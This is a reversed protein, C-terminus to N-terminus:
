CHAGEPIEQDAPTVPNNHMTILVLQYTPHLDGTHFPFYEFIYSHQKYVIGHQQMLLMGYGIQAYYHM